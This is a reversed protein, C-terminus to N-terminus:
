RPGPTQLSKWLLHAAPLKSIYDSACISALHEKRCTQPVIRAVRKGNATNLQILVYSYVIRESSDAGVLMKGFPLEHRLMLRAEQVMLTDMASLMVQGSLDDYEGELVLIRSGLNGPPVLIKLTLSALPLSCQQIWRSMNRAAYTGIAQNSDAAQSCEEKHGHKWHAKQCEKNCYHKLRCGDCRKLSGAESRSSACWACLLSCRCRPLSLRCSPCPWANTDEATSAAHPAAQSSASAEAQRKGPSPHGPQAELASTKKTMTCTTTQRSGISSMRVCSLGHSQM